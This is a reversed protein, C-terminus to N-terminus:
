DGARLKEGSRLVIAKTVEHPNNIIAYSALMDTDKLQRKVNEVAEKVDSVTGAMVLTVLRGGLAKETTLIEVNSVKLMIDAAVISTTNGTVEVIGLAEMVDGRWTSGEQFAGM